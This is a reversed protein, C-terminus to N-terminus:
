KQGLVEFALSYGGTAVVLDLQRDVGDAALLVLDFIHSIVPGVVAASATSRHTVPFHATIWVDM